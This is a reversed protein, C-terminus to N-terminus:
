TSPSTTIDLRELCALIGARRLLTVRELAALNHVIPDGEDVNLRYIDLDQNRATHCVLVVDAFGHRPLPRRRQFAPPGALNVSGPPETIAEHARGVLM